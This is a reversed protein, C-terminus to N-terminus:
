RALFTVMASLATLSDPWQGPDLSGCVCSDGDSTYAFLMRSGYGAWEGALEKGRGGCHRKVLFQLLIQGHTVSCSDETIRSHKLVKMAIVSSTGLIFSLCEISLRLTNLSEKKDDISFLPSYIDHVLLYIQTIDLRAKRHYLLICYIKMEDSVSTLQLSSFCGSM